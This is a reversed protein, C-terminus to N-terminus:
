RSPRSSRFLLYSTATVVVALGGIYGVIQLWTWGTRYGTSFYATVKAQESTTLYGRHQLCAALKPVDAVRYGVVQVSNLTPPTSPRPLVSLGCVSTRGSSGGDAVANTQARMLAYPFASANVTVNHNEILYAGAVFYVVAIALVLALRGAVGM